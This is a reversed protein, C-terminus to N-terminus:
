SGMEMLDDPHIGFLRAMPERLMQRLAQLEGELYAIRAAAETEGHEAMREAVAYTDQSVYSLGGFGSLSYGILQAFQDWDQVSFDMLSLENLDIGGNDLLHRVIANSKFRLTGREDTILPQIPHNM